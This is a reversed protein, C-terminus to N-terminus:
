LKTEVLGQALFGALCRRVDEELQPAPNEPYIECLVDVMKTVTHDACLSWVFLASANLVVLQEGSQDHIFLDAGTLTEKLHQRKVVLSM